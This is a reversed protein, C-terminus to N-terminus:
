RTLQHELERLVALDSRAGAFDGRDLLLVRYGKSSLEHFTRAGSIGGGVIAVDYEMSKVADFQAKRRLSSSPHLNSTAEIM